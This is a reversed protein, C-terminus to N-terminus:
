IHTNNFSPLDEEAIFQTSYNYTQPPPEPYTSNDPQASQALFVPQVRGISAWSPELDDVGGSVPAAAPRFSFGEFTVVGNTKVKTWLSPITQDPAMVLHSGDPGFAAFGTTSLNTLRLPETQQKRLTERYTAPHIFCPKGRSTMAAWNRGELCMAEVDVIDLDKGDERVVLVDGQIEPFAEQIETESLPRQVQPIKLMLESARANTKTPRWRRTPSATSKVEAPIHFGRVPHLHDVVTSVFVGERPRRSEMAACRIVVGRIPAAAADLYFKDAYAFMEPTFKHAYWVFFELINKFDAMTIGEAVGTASNVRVAAISGTWPFRPSPLEWNENFCWQLTTNLPLICARSVIKLNFPLRRGTLPNTDVTFIVVPSVSPDVPTMRIATEAGTEWQNADLYLVEPRQKETSFLVARVQNPIDPEKTTKFKHCLKRHRHHSEQACRESCYLIGRCQACAM